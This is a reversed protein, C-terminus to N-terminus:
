ETVAIPLESVSLQDLARSGCERYALELMRVAVRAMPLVDRRTDRPGRAREWADLDVGAAAILEMTRSPGGLAYAVEPRASIQALLHEVVEGRTVAQDLLTTVLEILAEGDTELMSSANRALIARLTKMVEVRNPGNVAIFSM